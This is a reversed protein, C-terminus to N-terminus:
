RGVENAQSTLFDDGDFTKNYEEKLYTIFRIKNIKNSNIAKKHKM